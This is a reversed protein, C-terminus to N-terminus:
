DQAEEFLAAARRAREARMAARSEDTFAWAEGRDLAERLMQAMGRSGGPYEMEIQEPTEGYEGEGSFRPRREGGALTDMGLFRFTSGRTHVADDPLFIVMGPKIRAEPGTIGFQAVLTQPVPLAARERRSSGTATPPAPLTPAPVPPVQPAGRERRGGSVPPAPLVPRPAPPRPPRPAAGPGSGPEAFLDTSPRRPPRPATGSREEDPGPLRPPRPAATWQGGRADGEPHRPQDEWSNGAVDGGDGSQGGAVPWQGSDALEAMRETLGRVSEAEMGIRLTETLYRTELRMFPIAEITENALAQLQADSVGGDAEAEMIRQYAGILEQSMFARPLNAEMLLASVAVDGLARYAEENAAPKKRGGSQGGAVPGQGSDQPALRLVGMEPTEPEVRGYREYMAGAELDCGRNLLHNDIKIDADLTDPEPLSIRFYALPEVGPGEYWEIVRRNIQTNITEEVWAADVAMIMQTEAEQLSAGVADKSSMTALDSGMVLTVIAQDMREVLKEMPNLSGVPVDIAEIKDGGTVVAAGDGNFNRLADVMQEFEPSGKAATSTGLLSPIGFKECLTLWDQLPLRKYLWLCLLAPGIYRDSIAVLWSGPDMEEGDYGVPQPGLFRLHSGRGECFWLPVRWFEGRLKGGVVPWVTHHVSRKFVRGDMLQRIFLAVGGRMNQELADTVTV